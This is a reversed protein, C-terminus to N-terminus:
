ELLEAVNMVYMLGQLYKQDTEFGSIGIIFFSVTFIECLLLVWYCM